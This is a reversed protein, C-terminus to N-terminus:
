VGDNTCFQHNSADYNRTTENYRYLSFACM